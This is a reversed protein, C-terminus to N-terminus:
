RAPRSGRPWAPSPSSCSTGASAAAVQGRTAGVRGLLRLVRRREVTAVALTNVLAVAVAGRRRGYRKTVNELVVPAGLVTVPIEEATQIVM